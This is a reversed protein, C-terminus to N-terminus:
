DFNVITFQKLKSGPSVAVISTQEDEKLFLEINNIIEMNKKVKYLKFGRHLLEKYIYLSDKILDRIILINHLHNRLIRKSNMIDEVDNVILLPVFMIKVIKNVKFRSNLNIFNVNNLMQSMKLFRNYRQSQNIYIVKFKQVACMLSFYYNTNYDIVILNDDPTYLDLISQVLKTELEKYIRHKRIGTHTPIRISTKEHKKLLDLKNPIVIDFPIKVLKQIHIIDRPSPNM